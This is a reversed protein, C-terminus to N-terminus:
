GGPGRRRPGPFAQCWAPYGAVNRATGDCAPVREPGNTTDHRGHCALSVQGPQRHPEPDDEVVRRLSDAGSPNPGNLNHALYKQLMEGQANFAKLFFEEGKRENGNRLCESMKALNGLVPGPIIVQNAGGIFEKPLDFRKGSADWVPLTAAKGEFLIIGPPIMLSTLKEM